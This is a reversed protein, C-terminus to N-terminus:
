SLILISYSLLSSVLLSSFLLSSLLPAFALPSRSPFPPQRVQMKMAEVVALQQGMEVFQGAVVGISVCLSLSLSLYPHLSSQRYANALSFPFPPYSTFSVFL